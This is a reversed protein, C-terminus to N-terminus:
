CRLFKNNIPRASINQFFLSIWISIDDITLYWCLLVSGVIKINKVCHLLIQVCDRFPPDKKTCRQQNSGTDLLFQSFYQQGQKVQMNQYLYLTQVYKWAQTCLVTIMQPMANAVHFYQCHKDLFDVLHLMEIDLSMKCVTTCLKMALMATDSIEDTIFIHATRFIAGKESFLSTELASLSLGFANHVRAGWPLKNVAYESYCAQLSFIPVPFDKWVGQVVLVFLCSVLLENNCESTVPFSSIPLRNNNKILSIRWKIPFLKKMWLRLHIKLHCKFMNQLSITIRCLRVMISFYLPLRPFFWQAQWM